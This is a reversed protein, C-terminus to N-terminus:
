LLHRSSVRFSLRCRIWRPWPAGIQARCVTATGLFRSAEVDAVAAVTQRREDATLSGASAEIAEPGQGVVDREAWRWTLRNIWSVLEHPDGIGPMAEPTVLLAVEPSLPMAVSHAEAALLPRWGDDHGFAISVAVPSDGLVFRENPGCRVAWWKRGRLQEGLRQGNELGRWRAHEEQEELWAQSEASPSQGIARAADAVRCRLAIGSTPPASSGCAQLVVWGRARTLGLRRRLRRSRRTASTSTM